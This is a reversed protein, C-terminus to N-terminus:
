GHKGVTVHSDTDLSTKQRDIKEIRKLNTCNNGQVSSDPTHSVQDESIDVLYTDFAISEGPKIVDDKKLFRSDLLKRSADFLRVQFVSLLPVSVWKNLGEDLGSQM